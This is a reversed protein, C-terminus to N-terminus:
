VFSRWLLRFGQGVSMGRAIGGLPSLLLMVRRSVSDPNELSAHIKYTVGYNGKLPYELLPNRVFPLGGIPIERVVGGVRYFVDQVITPALYVMPTVERAMVAYSAEPYAPDIVRSEFVTDVESECEFIGSVIENPKIMVDLLVSEQTNLSWVPKKQTVQTWYRTVAKHGVFVEDLDPGASALLAEMKGAGATSKATIIFRLPISTVNKHHYLLRLSKGAPVPYMFLSAPESLREPSNSVVLLDAASVTM